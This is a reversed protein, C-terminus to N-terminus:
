KKNSNRKEEQEKKYEKTYNGAKTFMSKFQRPHISGQFINSYSKGIKIRMQTKFEGTYKVASTIVIENPPLMIQGIGTGCSWRWPREIPQWEGNKNLAEMTADIIQGFAIVVTDKYINKIFVSHRANRESLNQTTDVYIKLNAYKLSVTNHSPDLYGAYYGALKPKPISDPNKYAEKPYLNYFSLYYKKVFITDKEAGIYMLDYKATPLWSTELPERKKISDNILTPVKWVDDLLKEEVNKATNVCATLCLLTILTFTIKLM